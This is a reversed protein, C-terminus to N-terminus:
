PAGELGPECCVGSSRSPCARGPSRRGRIGPGYQTDLGGSETMTSLVQPVLDQDWARSSCRAVTWRGRCTIHSARVTESRGVVQATLRSASRGADPEHPMRQAVLRVLDQLHVGGSSVSTPLRMHSVHTRSCRYSTTRAPYLKWRVVDGVRVVRRWTSIEPGPLGAM